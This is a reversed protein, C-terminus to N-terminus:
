CLEDFGAEKCLEVLLKCVDEEKSSYSKTKVIKSLNQATYDRYKEAMERIQTAISM